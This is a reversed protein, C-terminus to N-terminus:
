SVSPTYQQTPTPGSARSSTAAGFPSASSCRRRWSSWRPRPSRLPGPVDAEGRLQLLVTLLFGLGAVGVATCWDVLRLLRREVADLLEKVEKVESPVRYRGEAGEKDAPRETM